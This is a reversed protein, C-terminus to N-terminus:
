GILSSDFDPKSSDNKRENYLDRVAQFADGLKHMLAELDALNDNLKYDARASTAENMFVDLDDQGM